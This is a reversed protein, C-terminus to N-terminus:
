QDVGHVSPQRPTPSQNRALGELPSSKTQYARSTLNFKIFRIEILCWLEENKLNYQETPIVNAFM